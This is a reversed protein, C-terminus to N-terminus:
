QPATDKITRIDQVPDPTKPLIQAASQIGPDSICFTLLYTTLFCSSVKIAITQLTAIVDLSGSLVQNDPLAPNYEWIASATEMAAMKTIQGMVAVNALNVTHVLCRLCMILLIGYILNFFTMRYNTKMMTGTMM